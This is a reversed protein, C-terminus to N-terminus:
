NWVLDSIFDGAAPSCFHNACALLIFKAATEGGCPQGDDGDVKASDM